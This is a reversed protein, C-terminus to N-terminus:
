LTKQRPRDYNERQNFKRSFRKCGIFLLKCNSFSRNSQRNKKITCDNKKGRSNYDKKQLIFFVTKIKCAGPNGLIVPASGTSSIANSVM